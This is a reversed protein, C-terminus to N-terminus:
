TDIEYINDYRKELEQMLNNYRSKRHKLEKKPEIIECNCDDFLTQNIKKEKM